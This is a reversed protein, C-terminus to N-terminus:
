KIKSIIFHSQNILKFFIYLCVFLPSDPAPLVSFVLFTMWYKAKTAAMFAGLFCCVGSTFGQGGSDQIFFLKNIKISFINILLFILISVLRTQLILDHGGIGYQFSVTVGFGRTVVVRRTEYALRKVAMKFTINDFYLFVSTM